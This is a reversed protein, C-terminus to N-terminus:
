RQRARAFHFSAYSLYGAVVVGFWSLSIPLVESDVIFSLGFAIRILHALAVILFIIGVLTLLTRQSPSEIPLKMNWGYHALLLILVLDFIVGPVIMSSTWTVGLLVLPFFGASSLWLGCVIDAIVLGVGVKAMERLTHHMTISLRIIRFVARELIGRGYETIPSDVAYSRKHM